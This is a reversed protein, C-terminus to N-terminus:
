ERYLFLFFEAVVDGGFACQLRQGDLSYNHITLINRLTPISSGDNMNVNGGYEFDLGSNFIDVPFPVSIAGIRWQTILQQNMSNFVSCNVTVTDGAFVYINSGSAPSIDRGMVAFLLSVSTVCVGSHM